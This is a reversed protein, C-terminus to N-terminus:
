NSELPSPRWALVAVGCITVVGVSGVHLVRLLGYLITFVSMHGTCVFSIPLLHKIADSM